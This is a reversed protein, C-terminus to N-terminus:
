RDSQSCVPLSWIGTQSAHELTSDEYEPSSTSEDLQLKFWSSARMGPEVQFGWLDKQVQPNREAHAIRTPTKLVYDTDRTPGPWRGIVIIDSIESSQSSM